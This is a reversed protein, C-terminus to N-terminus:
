ENIEGLNKPSLRGDIKGEIKNNAQQKTIINQYTGALDSAKPNTKENLQQQISKRISELETPKFSKVSGLVKNLFECDLVQVNKRGQKKYSRYSNKIFYNNRIYSYAFSKGCYLSILKKIFKFTLYHLNIGHLTGEGDIKAVLILPSPDHKYFNYKFSVLSGSKVSKDLIRKFIRVNEPKQKLNNAQPKPTTPNNQGVVGVKPVEPVIDM